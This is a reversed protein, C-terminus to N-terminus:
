LLNGTQQRMIDIVQLAIDAEQATLNARLLRANTDPPATNGPRVPLSDLYGRAEMSYGAIDLIEEFPRGYYVSLTHLVRPSSHQVAGCELQALLSPVIETAAHVQKPTVDKEIRLQKLYEGLRHQM